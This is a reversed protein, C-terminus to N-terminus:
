HKNMQMRTHSTLRNRQYYKWKIIEKGEAFVPFGILIVWVAMFAYQMRGEWVPELVPLLQLTGIGTYWGYLLIAATIILISLTLWDNRKMKYAQYTSRKGIGYGRATMSDAAQISDELSGTLLMQLLQMGNKARSRLSGKKFSVGKVTQISEMNKIKRQLQPVFR